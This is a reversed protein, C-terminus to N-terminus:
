QGYADAGQQGTDIGIAQLVSIMRQASEPQQYQWGGNRKGQLAQDGFAQQMAVKALQRQQLLGQKAM